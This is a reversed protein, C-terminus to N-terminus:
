NEEQKEQLNKLRQIEAELEANKSDSLKKEKSKNLFDIILFILVPIGILIIVGTPTQLFTAVGGLKPIRTVYIGVVQDYTIPDDESPSFDGQTIYGPEGNVTTHKIIRHTVVEQDKTMYTVIDGVELTTPDTEKILILDNKNFAGPNGYEIDMSDSIVILPAYGFVKPVENPKVAGKIVITANLIIIPLFIVLLAIGVIDLKSLKFKKNEVREEM